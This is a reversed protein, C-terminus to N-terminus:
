RAHLAAYTDRCAASCFHLTGPPTELPLARDRPVYTGCQPDRVLRGSAPKVRPRADASRYGERAHLLLRVVFRLILLVILLRVIWVILATVM